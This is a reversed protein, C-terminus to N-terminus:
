SFLVVLIHFHAARTTIIKCWNINCCRSELALCQRQIFDVRCIQRGVYNEKTLRWKGFQGDGRGFKGALTLGDGDRTKSTSCVSELRYFM